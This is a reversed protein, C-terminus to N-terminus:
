SDYPRVGASIAEQESCYFGSIFLTTEHYSPNSPLVYEYTQSAYNIVKVPQKYGCKVFYYSYRPVHYAVLGFLVLIITPTAIAAIIWVHFKKRNKLTPKSM